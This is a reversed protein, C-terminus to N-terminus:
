TMCSAMLCQGILGPILVLRLLLRTTGFRGMRRAGLRIPRLLILIPKIIHLRDRLGFQDLPPMAGGGYAKDFDAHPFLYIVSGTNIACDNDGGSYFVGASSFFSRTCSNWRMNLDGISTLMEFGMSNSDDVAMIFAAQAPSQTNM